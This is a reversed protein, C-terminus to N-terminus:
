VLSFKRLIFKVCKELALLPCKSALFYSRPVIKLGMTFLHPDLDAQCQCTNKLPYILFNIIKFYIIHLLYFCFHVLLFLGEGQVSALEHRLLIITRCSTMEKEM